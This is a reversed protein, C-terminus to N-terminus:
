LDSPREMVIWGIRAPVQMGWGATEHRGYPATTKFLYVFTGLGIIVWVTLFINFINETMLILKCM